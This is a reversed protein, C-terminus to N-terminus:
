DAQLIEPLWGKLIHIDDSQNWTVTSFKGHHITDPGSLGTQSRIHQQLEGILRSPGTWSIMGGDQLGSSNLMGEAFHPLFPLIGPPLTTDPGRRGRFGYQHVLSRVLYSNCVELRVKGVRRQITHRSRLFERVALLVPERELCCDLILVNRPRTRVAGCGWVVGLVFAVQPSLTDFFRANVTPSETVRRNVRHLRAQLSKLGVRRAMSTVSGESRGLQRAVKVPGVEPYSQLIAIETNTWQRRSMNMGPQLFEVTERGPPIPLRHWRSFASLFLWGM